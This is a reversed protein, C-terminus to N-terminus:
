LHLDAEHVHRVQFNWADKHYERDDNPVTYYVEVDWKGAGFRETRVVTAWSRGNTSTWRQGQVFAPGEAKHFKPAHNM